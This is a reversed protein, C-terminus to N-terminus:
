KAGTCSSKACRFVGTQRSPGSLPPLAIRLHSPRFESVRRHPDHLTQFIAPLAFGGALDPLFGDSVPPSGSQPLAGAPKELASLNSASFKHRSLNHLM